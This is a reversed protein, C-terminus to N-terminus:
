KKVKNYYETIIQFLGKDTEAYHRKVYTLKGFKKFDLNGYYEKYEKPPKIGRSCRYLNVQKPYYKLRGGKVYRKEKGNSNVKILIREREEETLKDSKKVEIDTLYASFYAGINDCKDSVSNIKVFGQGWYSKVLKNPVYQKKSWILIVHLHWSGSQQPEVVSIYELKNNSYRRRLLRIFEKFDTYVRNVDKMPVPENWIQQQAYTLTLWSLNSPSLCNANIYGQLNKISRLIGKYNDERTEGLNFEKIEGSKLDVYEYKSIKRIAISTNLRSIYQVENINGMSKVTVIATDRIMDNKYNDITVSTDREFIM